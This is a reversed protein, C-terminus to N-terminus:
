RDEVEEDDVELEGNVSADDQEADDDDNHKNNCGEGHAGIQQAHGVVFWRQLLM